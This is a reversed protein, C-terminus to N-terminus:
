SWVPVGSIMIDDALRETTLNELRIAKKLSLAKPGLAVAEVGGGLLINGYFWCIRNVLRHSLFSSALERGGEVLLSTM